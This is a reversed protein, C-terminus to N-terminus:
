IDESINLCFIFAKFALSSLPPTVAFLKKSIVFILINHSLRGSNASGAVLNPVFIYHSAFSGIKHGSFYTQQEFRVRTVDKAEILRSRVSQIRGIEHIKSLHCRHTWVEPFFDYGKKYRNGM